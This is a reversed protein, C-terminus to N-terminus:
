KKQKDALLSLDSALQRGYVLWRMAERQEDASLIESPYDRPLPGANVFRTKNTPLGSM